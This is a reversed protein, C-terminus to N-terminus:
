LSEVKEVVAVVAARPVGPANRDAPAPRDPRFLEWVDAGLLAEAREPSRVLDVGHGTALRAAAAARLLPLLRRHAHAASAVGVELEREMRLLEVPVTSRPPRGRLAQEFRRRRAPTDRSRVDRVLLLLVLAAVILLWIALSRATSVPRLALLVVLSVIAFSIPRILRRGTV